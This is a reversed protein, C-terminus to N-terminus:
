VDYREGLKEVLLANKNTSVAGHIFRRCITEALFLYRAGEEARGHRICGMGYVQSKRHLERLALEYKTSTLPTQELLRSIAKIRLKDMGVRYQFSVQDERGGEKITLSQDILLFPNKASIRLWFDYDECCPFDPAFLGVKKFLEKRVMVTSMGVVCLQLCHDFIEGHRPLHKKKQNLHVGMRLWQERTHSILFEPCEEMAKLQIELKDKQWHDDSDLFALLGSQAHTIGLNRAAAPGQNEQYLYHLPVPSQACLSGVIARTQDTSGDDVVLIEQCPHTQAFVSCLARGIFKERNYTPIIVSITPM